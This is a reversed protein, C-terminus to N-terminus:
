GKLLEASSNKLSNKDIKGNGTTPFNEVFCIHKPVKFGPLNQKCHLFLAKKDCDGGTKSIICAVIIEGLIEDTVGFVAAAKVAHHELMIEEIEKPAIRHAGSKIMESKRGVIYLYGEEDTKALDGTWLGEKRLVMATRGPDKWYGQMINQGCAVIEGVDGAQVSRGKTDLLKLTVGPIAKGVSGPKRYFDDPHLYSLRPSAETQGYMIYIDVEPFTNKMELAFKHALPGGAQAFYRMCPFSYQKVLPTSFLMVFTSPVGSIATVNERQMIDLVVKPYMMSQHVIMTAGAAIHTLMVSNGFSYFFPLVVM